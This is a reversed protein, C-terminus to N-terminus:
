CNEAKELKDENYCIQIFKGVTDHKQNLAETCIGIRGIKNNHAVFILYIIEACKPETHNM